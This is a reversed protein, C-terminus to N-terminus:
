EDLKGRSVVGCHVIFARSFDSFIKARDTRPVRPLTIRLGILLVVSRVVTRTVGLLGLVVAPLVPWDHIVSM